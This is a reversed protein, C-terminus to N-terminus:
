RLMCVFDDVAECQIRDCKRADPPLYLYISISNLSSIISLFALSVMGLGLVLWNSSSSRLAVHNFFSFALTKPALSNQILIEDGKPLDAERLELNRRHILYCFWCYSTSNKCPNSIISYVFHSPCLVVEFITAMNININKLIKM